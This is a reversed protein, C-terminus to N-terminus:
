SKSFNKFAILVKKDICILQYLGCKILLYLPGRSTTKVASLGVLTTKNHSFLVKDHSIFLASLNLRVHRSKEKKV